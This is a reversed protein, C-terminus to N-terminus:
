RKVRKFQLPSKISDCDDTKYCLNQSAIKDCNPCNYSKKSGKMGALFEVQYRTIKENYDPAQEFLSCVEDISKGIALMYTALLFRATHPPNEGKELMHLIHTICPPYERNSSQIFPKFRKDNILIKRLNEVRSKISDPVHKTNIKNIRDFIIMSLEDRILRVIERADLHVYGDYVDRNILKWYKDHFYKARKLYDVVKIKYIENENIVDLGVADRFIKNLIADRVDEDEHKLDQELFREVRRAESLAFRKSASNIGVIKLMILALLFSIIEEDVDEIENIVEGNLAVWIRKVSKDLVKAMSEDFENLEYGRERIYDRVELLFPYKALEYKSIEISM